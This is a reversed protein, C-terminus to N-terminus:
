PRMRYVCPEALINRTPPAYTQTMSSSRVVNVILVDGTYHDILAEEFEVRSPNSVQEAQAARHLLSNLGSGGGM